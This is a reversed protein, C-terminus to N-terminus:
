RVKVELPYPEHLFFKSIVASKRVMQVHIKKFIIKLFGNM